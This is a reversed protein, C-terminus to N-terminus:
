HFSQKQKRWKRKVIRFRKAQYDWLQFQPLLGPEGKFAQMLLEYSNAQNPRQADSILLDGGIFRDLCLNSREVRATIADVLADEPVEGTPWRLIVLKDVFIVYFSYQKM